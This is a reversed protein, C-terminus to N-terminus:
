SQSVPASQGLAMVGCSVHAVIQAVAFNSDAFMWRSVSCCQCDNPRTNRHDKKSMLVM